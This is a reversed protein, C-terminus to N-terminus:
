AQEHTSGLSAVLARTSRVNQKARASRLYAHITHPSLGLVRACDAESEATRMAEAVVREQATLPETVRCPTEAADLRGQWRQM